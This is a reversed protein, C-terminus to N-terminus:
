TQEQAATQRLAWTDVGLAALLAETEALPLGVVNSYSGEIGTVFVAGLGQIAYAGTKDFGEGTGVYAAAEQGSVARFRVVTRVLAVECDDNRRAAVATLVEHTRGALALLMRQAEAADSPKGLVAGDLVVTTDAALVVRGPAALALAKARALRRVYDPATEGPLVSEDVAPVPLQVEFPLRIQRLLEARRPSASALLLPRSEM